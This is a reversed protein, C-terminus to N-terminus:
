PGVVAVPRLRDTRTGDGIQGYENRGWCYAVNTGTRGCTHDYGASVQSFFRGGAVAVPTLRPSTTGDGIGGSGWCYARNDTAEACTHSDGTTVRDFSLGGAVARPTFRLYTKGDGIQGRRGSGWCFARNDTTVGCAFASGADVQSFRRGGAVPSPTLSYIGGEGDGLQGVSDSGWCYALNTPTVGCTADLGARVDRFQLGGSVAVPTSRRTATGDGLNGRDNYGWCYARNDPYSVGCTYSSGADLRRFLHGGAVAVPTSRSTRTGDGLSGATGEGWCYARNDPTVGCTHLEGATVQRFRLAGGIAVPKLRQTTTGDGLQGYYNFGWCYARNDATVGCSHNGGGSVQVFALAASTAALASTPEPATPSTPEDGCGMVALLIGALAPALRRCLRSANDVRKTPQFLSPTRGVQSM